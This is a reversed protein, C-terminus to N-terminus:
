WRNWLRTYLRLDEWGSADPVLFAEIGGLAQEGLLAFHRPASPAGVM